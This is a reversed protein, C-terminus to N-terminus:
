RYGRLLVRFTVARDANKQKRLLIQPYALCRISRLQKQSLQNDRSCPRKLDTSGRTRDTGYGVGHVIAVKGDKFLGAVPEMAPHLAFRDDLRHMEDHIRLEPRARHYAPDEFPIVTNLGDNGGNLEVVVLVRNRHDAQRAAAAARRLVASPGISSFSVLSLGAANRGLFQRRTIPMM